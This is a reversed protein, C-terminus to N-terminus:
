GRGGSRGEADNSTEKGGRAPAGKGEWRWDRIEPMDDGHEEIYLRHDILKNRLAQKVYAARPGLQPVRDIV